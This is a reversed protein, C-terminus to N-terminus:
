DSEVDLSEQPDELLDVQEAEDIRDSLVSRLRQVGHAVAIRLMESQNLKRTQYAPLKKLMPKLEQLSELLEPPIRAAVCPDRPSDDDSM